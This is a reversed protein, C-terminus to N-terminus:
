SWSVGSVSYPSHSSFQSMEEGIDSSAWSDLRDSNESVTGKVHANAGSNTTWKWYQKRDIYLIWMIISINHKALM